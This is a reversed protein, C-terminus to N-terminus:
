ELPEVALVVLERLHPRTVGLQRACVAAQAVVEVLQQAALHRHREVVKAAAGRQSLSCFARPHRRVRPSAHDRRRPHLARRVDRAREERQGRGGRPVPKHPEPQQGEEEALRSQPPVKDRLVRRCVVVAVRPVSCPHHEGVRRVLPEGPAHVVVGDVVHVRADGEVLQAACEVRRPSLEPVDLLAPVKAGVRRHHTGREIPRRGKSTGGM